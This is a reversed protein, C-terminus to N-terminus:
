VKKGERGLAVFADVAVRVRPPLLKGSPFVASISLSPPRHTPLVEILRKSHIEQEVMYDPIQILGMGLVAAHVMGEGDSIQLRSAPMMELRKEKQSFVWPRVRGSTPMRHVVAVHKRLDDTAKPMGWKDLYAASACLLMTQKAFRRSVLRSDDLDGVRVALDIGEKILDSYSDHLRIDLELAPYKEVLGTLIPLLVQRGYVIPLDVRLLGTPAARTGAAESNLDDIEALIRECRRYLREGDATLNVQRTTRHFLKVGLSAELRAVAKALTSPAMGLERAAAAFNGHKATESFAVLQQIGQM